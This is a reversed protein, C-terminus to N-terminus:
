INCKCNKGKQKYKFAINEGFSKYREVLERFNQVPTFNAKEKKSM